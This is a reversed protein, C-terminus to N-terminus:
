WIVIKDFQKFEPTSFQIWYTGAQMHELNLVASTSSAYLERSYVLQGTLSFIKLEVDDSSDYVVHINDAVPNPYFSVKRELFLSRSSVPQNSEEIVSLRQNVGIAYLKQIPSNPWAITLSDITQYAGLGFHLVKSHHSLYSSGGSDVERLFTRGATHVYVATGIADINSVTGTLSVEIWNESNGTNQMLRTRGIGGVTDMEVIVMDMDGDHDYDAMACGKNIGNGNMGTSVSVDSFVGSANLNKFLRNEYDRVSDAEFVSLKGCAVFLDLYTDNDYDFFAAGWSVDEVFSQTLSTDIVNWEAMVGAQEAVNNFIGQDNRVLANGHINTVYYDLDQDEDYDGSVMSMSNLEIDFSTQVSVDLFSGNQNEYLSNGRTWSWAGFDNGLLIDVDGDLDYDSFSPALGCGNDFYLGNMVTVDQFTGNGNNRYLRDPFATQQLSNEVWNAFYVDLWGDEDYDGLAVGFTFSQDTFGALSGNETFTGDGNNVLLLNTFFMDTSVVLDTFGDRNVDGAAVGMTTKSQTIDFVGSTVSVDTFTGDQNNRYLKDSHLASTLYLDEWGDNDYDFWAAGGTMFGAFTHPPCYHDIGVSPAVDIFGSQALTLKFSM